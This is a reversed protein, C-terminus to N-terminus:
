GAQNLARSWLVGLTATHLAAIGLNSLVVPNRLAREVTFATALKYFVQMVLLATVYKEDPLVLLLISSLLIAFYVALLIGRAPTSDGYSTKTWAANMLLGTCVPILVAINLLLSLTIM